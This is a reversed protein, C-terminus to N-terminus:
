YLFPLDPNEIKKRRWQTIVKEKAEKKLKFFRSRTTIGLMSMIAENERIGQIYYVRVFDMERMTLVSDDLWWVVTGQM